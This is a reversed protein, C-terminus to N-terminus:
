AFDARHDAVFTAVSTPADGGVREVVDNTGAFVGHQYDVAVNSLHQIIHASMGRGRLFEAFAEVPIPEYRVPRNLVRTMEAAIEHHTMEVPGFLKYIQGAHTAPEDLVAAIVRAQDAAAIPAHRGEGFPLRMVGDVQFTNALMTLWEAFFTPRLHTVPVGAWDFVRESVWHQRAADSGAEERASIQSMNVIAEVGSERAAQAFYATAEVLGPAIPYCFYAAGIGELAARVGNLDLLDGQVIEAGQAALQESREDFRHVFARVRHGRAILLPITYRGTKGTAGTVLTMTTM